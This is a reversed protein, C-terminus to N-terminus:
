SYHKLSFCGATLLVFQKQYSTHTDWVLSSHLGVDVRWINPSKKGTNKNSKKPGDTSTHKPQLSVIIRLSLVDQQRSSLRFLLCGFIMCDVIEGILSYLTKSHQLGFFDSSLETEM